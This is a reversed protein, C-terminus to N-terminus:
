DRQAVIVADGLHRWVVGVRAFGAALLARRHSADDLDSQSHANGARDSFHRNREAVLEVMEPEQALLAWWGEWDLPPAAVTTAGEEGAAGRAARAAPAGGAPSQAVAHREGTPHSRQRARLKDGLEGLGSDPMHDANVLVGGPRLLSFAEAYVGGVRDAPLWHLATATLVADFSSPALADAWAPTALDARRVRVRTDGDFAGAAIALLAPDVDLVTASGTPFRELLRSTISGTGGALDLVRPGPTAPTIAEVIDLMAAFREERDPLHLQQQADWLAQWRM